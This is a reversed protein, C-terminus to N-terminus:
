KTYRYASKIEAAMPFSKLQGPDSMILHLDQKATRLSLSGSPKWDLVVEDHFQGILSISLPHTSAWTGIQVVMRFFIERCLSQTIIGALKGGYIKYWTRQKTKPHIFHGRWVDGSLRDTPKCYCIDRGRLYCGHFVRRLFRAGAPDYVQVVLTLVDKHMGGLSPPSYEAHITLRFGDLLKKELPVTDVGGELAMHLMDDLQLWLEVIMPNADRWDYVLKTAEGETLTIGMGEAFSQVAGPGANYGCSLEGVKGTQRQEKTVAAYPVGFIKEAQVMYMDLGAEFYGLKGTDGALWALGRSEVSSLDGVILAGNEDTATFVQRLNQALQDNDWEVYDGLEDGEILEDVDDIDAGLRKLNQMQVSRGTTRLTQAAGCHLYQDKLRWEGPTTPAATDIITQLKKLSSGGLIQKTLLLEKVEFYGQYKPDYPNMGLLKNRVATLYKAVHKEDFSTAKVGRAACWEKMQKLSNLNLDPADCNARFRDLALDQNDLYRRQMEKVLDLDVRWGRENMLMTQQQFELEMPSLAELFRETILASLRSDRMCYTWFEDWEQPHQSPLSSDWELMGAERRAKSPKSFLNVLKSGPDLKMTNLLQPAAVELKSGAGMARSIVASDLLKDLPLTIDLWKCVRREFPANHASIWDASDLAARLREKTYYAPDTFDYKEEFHKGVSKDQWWTTAILPRFHEDQVYRELGHKKLDVSGYTEFDLGMIIPDSMVGRRETLNALATHVQAAAATTNLRYMQEVMVRTGNSFMYEQSQKDLIPEEAPGIM